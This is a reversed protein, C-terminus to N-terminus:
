SANSLFNSVLIQIVSAGQHVSLIQTDNNIKSPCLGVDKLDVKNVDSIDKKKERVLSM